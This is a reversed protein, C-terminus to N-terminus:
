LNKTAVRVQPSVKVLTRFASVSMKYRSLTLHGIVPKIIKLELITVQDHTVGPCEPPTPSRTKEQFKREYM